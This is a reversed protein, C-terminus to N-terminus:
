PTVSRKTFSVHEDNMCHTAFPPNQSYFAKSPIGWNFDQQRGVAKAIALPPSKM